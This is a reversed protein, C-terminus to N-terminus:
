RWESYKTGDLATRDSGSLVDYTGPVASPNGPDPDAAITQWTDAGNTMPDVPIKRVYGETVLADLSEPYHGKDAYFQNIADRMRFLDEKLVAERAYLVSHQYQPLAVTGLIVILSMVVLLEVLTFGDASAHPVLSRKM